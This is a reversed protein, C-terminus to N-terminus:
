HSPVLVNIAEPIVEAILRKTKGLYEGDVQFHMARKSSLVLHATQLLETKENNLRHSFFRMKFIEIISIKRIIVVEFLHDHLTGLPNIVVGNGYRTGNAIVVMAADRKIYADDSKIKVDMRNHQWLVKWASKFYGWMGRINEEEFKKVVFANFGIDSLHICIEDNVKVLHIKKQEGNEIIEFAKLYDAPIGFEKAMGNASGAPFIGLPITTNMLAEAVLKVTGDGGVAIVKDAKMSQITDKLDQLSCEKSLTYVIASLPKDKFHTTIVDNWDTSNNGSSPNVIFVLNPVNNSSSM